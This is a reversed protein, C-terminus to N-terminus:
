FIENIHTLFTWKKDENAYFSASSFEYSEANEDLNWKKSIPNNHIYNMKQYAIDFNYMMKNFSNDQWFQYKRDKRNSKFFELMKLDNKELDFKIFQATYKLFDRQVNKLEYGERIKWLLHIHNPMIVFAYVFIRNNEVLYSLSDTIIKKYKDQILLNYWNVITATFFLVHNEIM